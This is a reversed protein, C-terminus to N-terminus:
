PNPKLKGINDDYCLVIFTFGEFLKHAQLTVCVTGFIRNKL